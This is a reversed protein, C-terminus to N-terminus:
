NHINGDIMNMSPDMVLMRSHEAALGNPTTLKGGASSDSNRQAIHVIFGAILILVTLTM